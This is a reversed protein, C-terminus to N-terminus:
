LWRGNDRAESGEETYVGYLAFCRQRHAAKGRLATVM